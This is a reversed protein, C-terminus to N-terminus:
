QTLGNEAQAKVSGLIKMVIQVMIKSVSSIPNCSLFDAAVALATNIDMEEAFEQELAVMDKESVKQGEPTVIIAMARPLKDGLAIVLGEASLETITIGDILKTIPYVQALVLPKQYYIKGNITYQKQEM